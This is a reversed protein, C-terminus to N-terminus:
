VHLLLRLLTRAVLWVTARVLDGQVDGDGAEEPAAFVSDLNNVLAGSVPNKIVLHTLNDIQAQTLTSAPAPVGRDKFHRLEGRNFWMGDCNPCRAICTDKPLSPDHFPRLRARCRPCQLQADPPAGIPNHLAVQDVRDLCEVAAASISLMEWRDCWIGGCRPCQDLPIFYGITAKAAVENMSVACNPCTLAM